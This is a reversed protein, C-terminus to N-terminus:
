VAHEKGTEEDSDDTAANKADEDTDSICISPTPDSENGSSFEFDEPNNVMPMCEFPLKPLTTQVKKYIKKKNKKKDSIIQGIEMEGMVMARKFLDLNSHADKDKRTHHSRNYRSLKNGAESGEESFLGPPCNKPLAGIM